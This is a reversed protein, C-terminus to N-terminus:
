REQRAEALQQRLAAILAEHESYQQNLWDYEKAALEAAEAASKEKRALAMETEARRGAEDAADREAERRAREEAALREQLERSQAEAKEFHSACCARFFCVLNQM